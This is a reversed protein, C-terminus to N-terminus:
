FRWSCQVESPPNVLAPTLSRTKGLHRRQVTDRRQRNSVKDINLYGGRGRSRSTLYILHQIFQGATAIHSTIITSINYYVTFNLQFCPTRGSKEFHISNSRRECVFVDFHSFCCFHIHKYKMHVSELIYGCGYALNLSCRHNKLPFTYLKLTISRCFVCSFSVFFIGGGLGCALM